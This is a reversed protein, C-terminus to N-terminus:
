PLTFLINMRWTIRPFSELRWIADAVADRSFGSECAATRSRNM